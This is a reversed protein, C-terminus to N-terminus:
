IFLAYRIDGDGRKHLCESNNSSDGKDVVVVALTAFSAAGTSHIPALFNDIFSLFVFVMNVTSCIDFINGCLYGKRRTSRTTSNSAPLRATPMLHTV